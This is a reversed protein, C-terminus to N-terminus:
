AAAEHQSCRVLAGGHGCWCRGWSAHWNVYVLSAASYLDDPHVVLSPRGNLPHTESKAVFRERDCWGIVDYELDSVTHVLVGAYFTWTDINMSELPWHYWPQSVSKVELWGIGSCWVDKGKEPRYEERNEQAILLKAVAFEAGVALDCKRETADGRSEDNFDRM